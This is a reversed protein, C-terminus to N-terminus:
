PSGSNIRGKKVGSGDALNVPPGVRNKLCDIWIDAKSGDIDFVVNGKNYSVNNSTEFNKLLATDKDAEHRNQKDQHLVMFQWVALAAETIGQFVATDGGKDPHNKLKERYAKKYEAVTPLRSPNLDLRVLFDRITDLSPPVGM